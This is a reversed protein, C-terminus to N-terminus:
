AATSIRAYVLQKALPLLTEIYPLPPDTEVVFTAPVPREPHQAILTARIREYPSGLSLTWTTHYHTVVSRYQLEPRSERFLPMAYAYTRVEHGTRLLLWGETARLPMLGVSGFHIRSAYEQRQAAGEELARELSPLAMEVLDDVVDLALPQELPKRIPELTRPDLGIMPGQVQDMLRMKNRRYSRLDEVHERLAELHPYLKHEKYRRYVRQLYGLVRYELLERDIVPRLM